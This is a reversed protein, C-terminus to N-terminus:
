DCLGFQGVSVYKTQIIGFRFCFLVFFGRLWCWFVTEGIQEASGIYKEIMQHIVNVLDKIRDYDRDWDQEIEMM